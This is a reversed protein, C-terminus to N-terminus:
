LTMTGVNLNEANVTGSPSAPAPTANTVTFGSFDLLNNGAADEWGESGPDSYAATGTEGFAISRDLNYSITTTGAGSAYTENVAGGSMSLSFLNQSTASVAENFVVTLVSGNVTMSQVTPPSVDGGGSLEFFGIDDVFPNGDIDDLPDVSLATRSTSPSTQLRYDRAAANVFIATTEDTDNNSAGGEPYGSINVSYCNVLLNNKCEWGTNPGVDVYLGGSWGVLTNQWIKMGNAGGSSGTVTRAFGGPVFTPDNTWFNNGYVFVDNYNNLPVVVATGQFDTGINYAFTVNTSESIGLVQGHIGSDASRRYRFANSISSYNGVRDIYTFDQNIHSLYSESLTVNMIYDASTGDVNFIRTSDATDYGHGRMRIRNFVINDALTDLAVVTGVSANSIVIGYGDSMWASPRIVGYIEFYPRRIWASTFVAAGDGMDSSWGTDTVHYSATAKFIRVKSTGSAAEEFRISDAYDGDAYYYDNGRVWGTGNGANLTSHAIANDWNVGSQTGSGTLTVCLEAAFAPIGSLWLVLWCALLKTFLNHHRIKM